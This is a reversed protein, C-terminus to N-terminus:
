DETSIRHSLVTKLNEALDWDYEASDEKLAPINSLAWLYYDTPIDHLKVGRYKGFPWLDIPVPEWCLLNLTLYPDDSSPHIWNNDYAFQVLYDFLIACLYTDDKARHLQTNDPVPLDLRYRLYNLGYEINPFHHHFLHQSLRWTCIWRSNDKCIEAYDARGAERWAKELVAQDYKANHAVYYQSNPWNLLQEVVACSEKFTPLGQIMKNSINNKASAEPPIGNTAGLLTGSVQWSDGDWRAAAIEVIEALNAYLNTTETDLVIVNKSIM